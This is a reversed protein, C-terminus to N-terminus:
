PAATLSEMITALVADLNQLVDNNWFRLVKWRQLQMFATRKEDYIAQEHHQGGDLEIVLMSEICAFDAIYPGIPHQRRFRHGELQKGRIAHWLRQEALTMDTRLARANSTSQPKVRLRENLTVVGMRVKGRLPPLSQNATICGKVASGVGSQEKGREPPLSPHPYPPELMEDM